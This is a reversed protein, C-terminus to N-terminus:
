VRLAVSICEKLRTAVEIKAFCRCSIAAVRGTIMWRRRGVNFGAQRVGAKVESPGM